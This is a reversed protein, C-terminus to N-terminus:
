MKEVVEKLKDSFVKVFPELHEESIGSNEKNYFLITKVTTNVFSLFEDPMYSFTKLFSQQTGCKEKHIEHIDLEPNSEFVKLMASTFYSNSYKKVFDVRENYGINTIKNEEEIDDLVFNITEIASTYKTPNKDMFIKIEKCREHLNNLESRNFYRPTRTNFHYNKVITEIDAKDFYIDIMKKDLTLEKTKAILSKKTFKDKEGFKFVSFDVNEDELNKIFSQYPEELVIVKKDALFNDGREISISSMVHLLIRGFCEDIFNKPVIVVHSGNKAEEVIDSHIRIAQKYPAREQLVNANFRSLVSLSFDKINTLVVNELFTLDNNYSNGFLSNSDFSYTSYLTDKNKNRTESKFRPVDKVEEFEFFYYQTYASLVEMLKSLSSDKESTVNFFAITKKRFPIENDKLDFKPIAARLSGSKNNFKNFLLVTNGKKGESIGYQQNNAFIDLFSELEMEDLSDKEAYKNKLESSFQSARLLNKKKNYSVPSFSVVNNYSFEYALVPIKRSNLNILANLFDKDKSLDIKGGVVRDEGDKSLIEKIFSAPINKSKLLSIKDGPTKALTLYEAFIMALNEGKLLEEGKSHVKNILENLKGDKVINDRSPPFNLVGPEVKILYRSNKLDGYVYGNVLFCSLGLSIPSMINPNEDDAYDVGFLNNNFVQIKKGNHMFDFLHVYSNKIGRFPRSVSDWLRSFSSTKENKVEVDFELFLGEFEKITQFADEVESDDLESFPIFISTGNENNHNGKETEKVNIMKPPNDKVKIVSFSIMHGNNVTVVDFYSVLSLPAKFGFGYHGTSDDNSSKTSEGYVKVVNNITDMTMGYGFDRIVVNKSNALTPLEVVIKNKIGTENYFNRTADGANSLVERMTAKAPNEYMNTFHDILMSFSDVNIKFDNDKSEKNFMPKVTSSM